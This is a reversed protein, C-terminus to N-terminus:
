QRCAAIVRAINSLANDDLRGPRRVDMGCISWGIIAARDRLATVFQLLTETKWRGQPCDSPLESPALVDLDLSVYVWRKLDSYDVEEPPRYTVSAWRGDPALTYGALWSQEALVARDREDCRLHVPSGTLPYLRLRDLLRLLHGEYSLEAGTDPAVEHDLRANAGIIYANAFLGSELGYSIWSGNNLVTGGPHNDVDDHWDFCVVSLEEPPVGRLRAVQRVHRADAEHTNAWRGVIVVQDGPQAERRLQRIPVLREEGHAFRSVVYYEAVRQSNQYYAILRM